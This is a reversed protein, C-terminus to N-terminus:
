SAAQEPGSSLVNPVYDDEEDSEFASREIPNQIGRLRQRISNVRQQSNNLVFESEEEEQLTRDELESSMDERNGARIM